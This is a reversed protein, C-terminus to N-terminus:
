SLVMSALNAIAIADDLLDLLRISSQMSAIIQELSVVPQPIAMYVAEDAEDPAFTIICGILSERQYRPVVKSVFGRRVLTTGWALECWAGGTVLGRLTAIQALAGDSVYTLADNFTCRLEIDGEEIGMIQTSVGSSGPYRTRVMRMSVPAEVGQEPLDPGELTVTRLDGELERITVPEGAAFATTSGM